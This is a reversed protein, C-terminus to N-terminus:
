MSLAFEKNPFNLIAGKKGALVSRPHGIVEYNLPNEFITRLLESHLDHGSRHLTISGQISVGAIKFDGLADLVKHRVFEDGFRLGEPNLVNSDNLVVANELSGGLILGRARLLEVDRLFGFTRAPAIEEEFFTEGEIYRFEQYGISPHNWEISTQLEFGSSPEAIAWRDEQKVEVKRTILITTQPFIQTQLGANKLEACFPAASGDLIPLEPGDVQILLNHVGTGQLAALLHEVTSVTAPGNGLTTALLTSVVFEPHAPIKPSSELDTREFVVGHNPPAPLIRTTIIKGTHLGVGSLTIEQQITRQFGM